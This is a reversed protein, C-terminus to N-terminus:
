EQIQDKGLIILFDLNDQFIYEKLENPLINSRVGYICEQIKQLSEPKKNNSIDYIVTTTTNQNPANGIRAVSLGHNLLTQSKLSALGTQTTGNLIQIVAQEKDIKDIKFINRFFSKIIGYDNNKPTLIFAGDLTSTASRLLNDPADNLVKNFIKDQDMSKLIEVFRIAEWGEIDTKIYKNLIQFLKIVKNPNTLTSFSIIKNKIAEIIKFQRESRAYDSAEFGNGEGVIGHRSRAFELARAGDLHQYGKEFSVTKIKHDKTPYNYDTFSNEIYVNVGGLADVIEEFGFFDIAIGYHIPLGINQSIIKKSYSIGTENEIYEGATYLYNIKQYQNEGTKTLFDRPMSVLSTEGTEYNYSLVIITDTLLAGDHGYGGMGLILLNIQGDKEGKLTKTDASILHSIQNILFNKKVSQAFNSESNAAINSLLLISAIFLLLFLFLVNKIIFKTRNKRYHQRSTELYAGKESKALLNINKNKLM